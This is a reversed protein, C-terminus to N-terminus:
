EIAKVWGRLATRRASEAERRYRTLTRPTRRMAAPRTPSLRALLRAGKALDADELREAKVLLVDEDEYDLRSGDLPALVRELRSMDEQQARTQMAALHDREAKTM